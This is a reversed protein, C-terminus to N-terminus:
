DAMLTSTVLRDRGELTGVGAAPRLPRRGSAALTVTLAAAVAVLPGPRGLLLALPIAVIPVLALSFVSGLILRRPNSQEKLRRRCFALGPLLCLLLLGAPIRLFPIACAIACAVAWAPESPLRRLALIM